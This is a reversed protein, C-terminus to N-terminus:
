SIEVLIFGLDSGLLLDFLLQGYALIINKLAPLFDLGM